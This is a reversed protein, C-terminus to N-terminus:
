LWYFSPLSVPNTMGQMPVEKFFMNSFSLSVSSYFHHTFQFLLYYM